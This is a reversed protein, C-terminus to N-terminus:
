IAGKWQEHFDDEAVNSAEGNASGHCVPRSWRVLLPRFKVTFVPRIEMGMNATGFLPPGDYIQPEQVGEQFGLTYQSHMNGTM